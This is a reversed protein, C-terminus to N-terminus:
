KESTKFIYRNTTRLTSTYNVRLLNLNSYSNKRKNQVGCVQCVINDFIQTPPKIVM